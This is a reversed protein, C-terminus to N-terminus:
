RCGGAEHLKIAEDLLEENSEMYQNGLTEETISTRAEEVEKTVTQNNEVEETENQTAEEDLKKNNNSTKRQENANYIKKIQQWYWSM